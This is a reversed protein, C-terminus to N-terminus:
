IISSIDDPHKIGRSSFQRYLSNKGKWLDWGNRIEQGAAFHADAVADSETKNKFEEKEKDTRVCDMYSLADNLNKPIYENPYKGCNNQSYATGITLLFTLLYCLRMSFIAPLSDSYSANRIKGIYGVAESDWKKSIFQFYVHTLARM